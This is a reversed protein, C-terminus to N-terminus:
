FPKHLTCRPIRLVENEKEELHCKISFFFFVFSIPPKSNNKAWQTEMTVPRHQEDESNLRLSM